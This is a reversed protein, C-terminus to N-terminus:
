RTPMGFMCSTAGEEEAGEVIRHIRSVNPCTADIVPCGLRELAQHVARGEGHSRIIVATGPEAEKPTRILGVGQARLCDIVSGNHIVPGLMACPRGEAAAQEAMSVARRVGYCFGATRALEIRM